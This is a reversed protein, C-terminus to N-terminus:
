LYTYTNEFESLVFPNIQFVMWFTIFTHLMNINEM